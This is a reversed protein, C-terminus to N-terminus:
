GTRDDHCGVEPAPHVTLVEGTFTNVRRLRADIGLMRIARNWDDDSSDVSRHRSLLEWAPVGHPSWEIEIPFQRSMQRPM